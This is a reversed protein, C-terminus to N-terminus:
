FIAINFYLLGRFKLHFGGKRRAATTLKEWIEYLTSYPSLTIYALKL